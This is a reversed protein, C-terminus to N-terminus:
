IESSLIHHGELFNPWSIPKFSKRYKNCNSQLIFYIKKVSFKQFVKVKRICKNNYYFTQYLFIKSFNLLNSLYTNIMPLWTWLLNIYEKITPLPVDLKEDFIMSSIQGPQLFRCLYRIITFKGSMNSPQICYFYIRDSSFDM